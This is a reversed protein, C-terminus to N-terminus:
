RFVNLDKDYVETRTFSVYNPALKVYDGYLASMLNLPNISPEQASIIASITIEGNKNYCIKKNNLPYNTFSISNIHPAIDIESIGRKTKKIIMINKMTFRNNLDDIINIPLIDYHLQGNIKVWKITNFKTYPIYSDTIKIGEPLVNNILEPLGDPLLYNETKFDILECLSSLGVSLPLAISLSPHPNFGQSYKLKIGARIFSRQLTSMLDLHSMYIAKGTKSFRLRLKHNDM